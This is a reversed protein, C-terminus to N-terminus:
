VLQWEGGRLLPVAEGDPAVGDVEVDDSGIMFDTHVTSRNVGAAEPDKLPACGSRASSAM